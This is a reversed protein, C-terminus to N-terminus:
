KEHESPLLAPDRHRFVNSLRSRSKHNPKTVNVVIGHKPSPSFNRHLNKEGKGASASMVIWTKSVAPSSALVKEAYWKITILTPFDALRLAM